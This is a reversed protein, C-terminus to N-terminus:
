VSLMTKSSGSEPLSDGETRLWKLRINDDIHYCACLVLPM